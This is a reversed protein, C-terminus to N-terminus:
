SLILLTGKDPMWQCELYIQMRLKNPERAHSGYPTETALVSQNNM